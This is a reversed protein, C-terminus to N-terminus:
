LTITDSKGLIAANSNVGHCVRRGRWEWIGLSLIAVAWGGAVWSVASQRPVAVYGSFSRVFYRLDKYFRQGSTGDIVGFPRSAAPDYDFVVVFHGTDDSLDSRSLHMIFPPRLQSLEAESVFRIDLPVGVRAGAVRLDEFSSGRWEHAGTTRKVQDWTVSAGLIQGFIYLSNPGCLRPENWRHPSVFKAAASETAGPEYATSARSIDLPAPTEIQASARGTLGVVICLCHSWALRKCDCDIM